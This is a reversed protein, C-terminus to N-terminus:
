STKNFILTLHNHKHEEKTNRYPINPQREDEQKKGNLKIKLQQVITSKLQQKM